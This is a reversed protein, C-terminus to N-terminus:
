NQEYLEIPIGDPDNLFSYRRGSAGLRPESIGVRSKLEAYAEDLNTVSLAVHRLGRVKLDSLDDKPEKVDRFEWIEIQVGKLKLFVAKGNLDRREFRQAQVFGFIEKYFEISRDLNKVSIAIHHIGNVKM